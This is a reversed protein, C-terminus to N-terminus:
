GGAASHSINISLTESYLIMSISFIAELLHLPIGESGSGRSVNLWSKTLSYFEAEHEASITEKRFSWHQAVDGGGWFTQM